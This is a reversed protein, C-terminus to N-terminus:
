VVHQAGLVRDETESFFRGIAPQVGLVPFLSATAEGERVPQSELGQGITADIVSYAAAGDFSNTEASTLSYTVYGFDSGTQELGTRARTTAYLRVVQGADRVHEPGRLVLRDIVGFMAANAGIGLALTVLIFATFLPERRLGRVAYRVDQQLADLAAIGRADRVAEKVHEVGGFAARARRAAESPAAGQRELREAEREIHFRLEDELEREANARRFVAQLRFRLDSWLDRLM